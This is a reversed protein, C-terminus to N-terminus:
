GVDYESEMFLELGPVKVKEKKLKPQDNEHDINIKLFEVYANQFDGDEDHSQTAFVDVTMSTLMKAKISSQKKEKAIRRLFAYHIIQTYYAFPNNTKNPDFKEFYLICNEVADLVMDERYTYNIFNPKYSYRTAIKLLCEGLYKTIKPKPKGSAESEEVSLKYAKIAEYFEKNNVYHPNKM